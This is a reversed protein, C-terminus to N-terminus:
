GRTIGTEVNLQNWDVAWYQPDLPDVKLRKDMANWITPFAFTDIGNVMVHRVTGGPRDVPFIERPPKNIFEAQFWGHEPCRGAHLQWILDATVGGIDQIRVDVLENGCLPCRMPTQKAIAM